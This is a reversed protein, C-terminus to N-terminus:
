PTGKNQVIYDHYVHTMIKYNDTNFQEYDVKKGIIQDYVKDNTNFFYYTDKTTVKFQDINDAINIDINYGFPFYLVPITIQNINLQKEM